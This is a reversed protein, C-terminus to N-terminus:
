INKFLITLFLKGHLSCIFYFNDKRHTMLHFQLYFKVILSFSNGLLVYVSNTLVLTNWKITFILHM